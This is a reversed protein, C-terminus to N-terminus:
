INEFVSFKSAAGAVLAGGIGVESGVSFVNGAELSELAEGGAIAGGIAINSAIFLSSASGGALIGGNVFVVSSDLLDFEYVINEAKFFLDLSSEILSVDAYYFGGASETLNAAAESDANIDFIRYSITRGTRLSGDVYFLKQLPRGISYISVSSDVGTTLSAKVLLYDEYNPTTIDLYYVGRGGIEGDAPIDSFLVTGSSNWINFVVNQATKLNNAKYYLRLSENIGVSQIDM